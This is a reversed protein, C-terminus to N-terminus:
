FDIELDMQKKLELLAQNKAALHEFKERPTYPIKGKDVARDITTALSIKGNNLKKRLYALLEAKVAGIDKEVASNDLGFHVTYNEKLEPKRKCLATHLTLRGNAQLTAAFDNWANQLQEATFEQEEVTIEESFAAAGARAAAKL